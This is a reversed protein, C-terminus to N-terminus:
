KEKINRLSLKYAMYIVIPWSCLWIISSLYEM